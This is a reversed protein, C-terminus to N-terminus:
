RGLHTRLFGETRQDALTAVAENYTKAGVRNFAHDAGAYFHLEARGELNEKIIAQAEPLCQSDQEPIHLVLPKSLRPAQDICNEIGVGFYGVNADANGSVAMLFALRGGLCYGITAVKSDCAPHARLFAITAALDMMAKEDDFRAAFDLARPFQERPVPHDIQVGPEMRWFLDPCIAIYGKDAWADTFSRMEKNVGFIQQLMVVGPFKGAANRPRSLYAAFGGGDAAAIMVEPM